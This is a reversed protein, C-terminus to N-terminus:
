ITQLAKELEADSLNPVQAESISISADNGSSSAVRGTLGSSTNSAEEIKKLTGEQKQRLQELEAKLANNENTAKIQRAYSLIIDPDSTAFPDKKFASIKEDPFGDKRALEAIDDIMNLTDPIEGLVITQNHAAMQSRNFEELNSLAANRDMDEKTATSIDKVTEEGYEEKLPDLRSQQAELRERERKRFDGIENAQKQIFKEKEQLQTQLKEAETPEETTGKESSTGNKGDANSDSTGNTAVEESKGSEKSGNTGAGKDEGESNTGEEASALAEALKSDDLTSIDAIDQIGEEAM